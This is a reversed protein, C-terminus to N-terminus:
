SKCCANRWARRARPTVPTMRLRAVVDGSFAEAAREPSEALAPSNEGQSAAAGGCGVVLWGCGCRCRVFVELGAAHLDSYLDRTGLYGTGINSSLYPTYRTQGEANRELSSSTVMGNHRIRKEERMADVENRKADEQSDAKSESSM